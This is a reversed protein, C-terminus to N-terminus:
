EEARAPIDPSSMLNGGAQVGTYFSRKTAKEVFDVIAQRAQQEKESNVLTPAYQFALQNEQVATQYVDLLTELESVAPVV